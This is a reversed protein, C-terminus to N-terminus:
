LCYCYMEIHSNHVCYSQNGYRNIRTIAGNLALSDSTFRTTGEFQGEGPYTQLRVMIEFKKEEGLRNLIFAEQVERLQLRQCLPHTRILLNISEVVFHAARRSRGDTSPIKHLNRCLCFHAPISALDCDREDPIPLFLSIGRPMKPGLGQLVTTRNAINDDRLLKLNTLDKLTAHLDYTTVLSNANHRLNSIALPYAKELWKPYLAILFPQSEELRGQSSGRYSGFRLGHDAKFLVLTTDLIHKHQLQHFLKLYSEDLLQAYNFYDHVGQTEWFFSFHPRGGELHPLLKHIFEHHIEAFHRGASCHILNRKDLSYRTHTNIELMAPRLYFDTPPHQFGQKVYTFTGIASNDEGFSTNYGADKFHNWLLRCRDFYLKDRYCGAELETESQGSLLPAINPFSNLGVRNYGWFEVHSQERIFSATLPMSRIFHMHSISDIGLIMVSLRDPRSSGPIKTRLAPAPLFIHVDHYVLKNRVYCYIRLIRPGDAVKILRMQDRLRITRNLTNRNFHDNYRIVKTYKCSVESLSKVGYSREIERQSMSIILFNKGSVTESRFLQTGNCKTPEVRRLYKLSIKPFANMALMRCGSTNVFYDEM